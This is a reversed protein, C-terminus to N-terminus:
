FVLISLFCNGCQSIFQDIDEESSVPFLKETENQVLFLLVSVNLIYLFFSYFFFVVENKGIENVCSFCLFNIGYFLM